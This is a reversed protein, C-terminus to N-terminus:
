VRIDDPQLQAVLEALDYDEGYLRVSWKGTQSCFIYNYEQYEAEPLADYYTKAGTNIEGRDRGYAVTVGDQKNDFNHPRKGDPYLEKSLRSLSGLNLLALIKETTNYVTQLLYGNHGIYGDWHCYITQVKNGNKLSITSRTAM